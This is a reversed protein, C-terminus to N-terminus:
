FLNTLLRTVEEMALDTMGPLARLSGDGLMSSLEQEVNAPLLRRDGTLRRYAWTQIAVGAVDLGASPKGECARRFEAHELLVAVESYTPILGRFLRRPMRGPLGHRERAAQFREELRAYYRADGAGSRRPQWFLKRYGDILTDDFDTVARYYDNMQAGPRLTLGGCLVFDVGADACRSMLSEIDGPRDSIGPLVPM